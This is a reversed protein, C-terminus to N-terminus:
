LYNAPDIFNTHPRDDDDRLREKSGCVAARVFLMVSLVGVRFPVFHIYNWVVQASITTYPRHNDEAPGKMRCSTPRWCFPACRLPRGLSFLIMWSGFTSLVVQEESMMLLLRAVAFWPDLVVGSWRGSAPKSISGARLM